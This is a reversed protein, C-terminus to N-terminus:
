SITHLNFSNITLPKAIFAKVHKLKKIFRQIAPDLSASLIFIEIKNKRIFEIEELKQLFQYGNMLPMRYDVFIVDPMPKSEEILKYVIKLGEEGSHCIHFNEVYGYYELIRRNILNDIPNDDILLATKYRYDIM